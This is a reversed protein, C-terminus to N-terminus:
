RAALRARPRRRLLAGAAGFGLIMLAWSSPEPVAAGPVVQGIVINDIGINDSNPGLGTLILRLTLTQATPGSVFAFNTHGPGVGDGEVLVNSQSFLTTAGDLVALGPLVYDTRQWGALDFGYLRVHWGPDATFTVELLSAGDVENELVNVLDGYGTPFRAPSVQIGALYSTVVNPTFGEAGVGYAANNQLTATVRDGYSQSMLLPANPQNVDIDFTLVTAQAAHGAALAVVASAAAACLGRPLTTFPTGAPM